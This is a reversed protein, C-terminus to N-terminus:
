EVEAIRLEVRRNQERGERTANDAIPRDPGHGRASLRAEEVGEAILFDRVARAREDSLRRNLVASGRSDTHGEILVRRLQPNALLVQAVERLLGHSRTQISAKGTDFHVKERLEITQGVDLQVQLTPEEVVPEPAPVTEIVPELVPQAVPAIVPPAVIPCGDPTGVAAELPCADDGNLVGDRDADLHPCQEIPYRSDERCLDRKGGDFSVGAIARVAPTGPSNGFGPGALAFLQMGAIPFRAGALVEVNPAQGALPVQLRASLEGRLGAGLSTVGVGAEFRSGIRDIAGGDLETLLEATKPKVVGGLELAVRTSGVRKGAGVRPALAVSPDRTLLASSGLPLGVGLGLGLDIPSGDVERLLGVRGQLWPTGLGMGRGVPSVVVEGLESRVTAGNQYAVVPVWGSLELWRNVAYAGGFVTTWRHEVLTARSVGEEVYKLPSNQYGLSASMRWEGAANLDAGGVLLGGRAAPNWTLQELEFGEVRPQAGAAGPLLATLVAVMALGALKAGAKTVRASRLFRRSRLLAAGAILLGLFSGGGGTSTCGVGGGLTIDPNKVSLKARGTRHVERGEADLVGIELSHEGGGLLPLTFSWNGQEDAQTRGVEVGDVYVVVTSGPTATGTVRGNNTSVRVTGDVSPDVPQGRETRLDFNGTVVDSVNGAEDKVEISVSRPGPEIPQSPTCTWAGSPDAIATCVIEGDVRVTIESGPEATGGFTPLPDTILGGDTRPASVAPQAPATTDIRFNRKAEPSENGAADTSTATVEHAGDALAVTSTCSWKGAADTQATCVLQGDVRVDVPSRPEATGSFRPTAISVLGNKGVPDITPLAPALTDVTFTSTGPASPRGSRDTATLALRHLGDALPFPQACSWSGDEAVLATCALTGDVMLTVVSHPEGTGVYLPQRNSLIEANRPQTLKPTGPNVTDVTFVSEGPLSDNGADDKAILTVTHPGDLLRQGVDCSFHGTVDATVVCLVEGDIRVTVESLPEAVGTLTPTGTTIHAGDLPQQLVPQNPATLDIVVSRDAGPSVNGARDLARVTLTVTGEPLPQLPLCSWGGSADASTSCVLGTGQFVRVQALPEATGTLLPSPDNLKANEAPASWTSLAPATLDIEFALSEDATGPVGNPDTVTITVTHPGEALPPLTCSWTGDSAITATCLPQGGPGTVTVSGGAEQPSTTGTLTPTPVDLSEGPLPAGVGPPSVAPRVDLQLTKTDLGAANQASLTVLFAGAASPTGRITDVTPMDFSRGASSIGVVADNTFTLGPPLGTVDLIIPATGTATLTYRFPSGVAAHVQLASTLQPKTRVTVTLTEQSSGAPNTASLPLTLTGEEDPTGSLIGTTPDFQAWSPLATIGLTPQTGSATLAYTFLDGVVADATLASTIQPVSRVTIVLSRQDSGAPNTARLGVAVSGDSLPTGTLLGTAPDFSLWQPLGNVSLQPQTGSATLTYGFPQGVVADVALASTVVPTTRVTIVLTRTDSGAANAAHLAISFSGDEQPTGTLLNNQADFHLWQPMSAATLQPETGSATIGYTFPQGVVADVALASTIAPRTRVTILLARIDQGAPNTAELAVKHFDDATPTGSLVGTAPNFALWQPLGNVSLQPQTGSATLTYSFPQGVVADATLASTIVPVTRVTIVLTRTDIGAPNTAQLTVNVVGEASPTGTLAGTQADFSLWQPASVSIVPATGSATVGYTFPQGVVADVALSSTIQPATRVTILLTKQDTGAPNTAELGVAFVGDGHPIGTLQGTAEDFSLWQPLGSVSLQPATGSATLTYAFPQGVVADVALASTVVPMARVTINLTRTDTGAPNSAQLTVNVLGDATPVGSLVGTASDFSLWQPLGNVSLQPETGSATVAYTFPQGVVADVALSSTVLPRARVIILLARIDYGAPNVADLAVKYGGEATPIGSLLGTAPDFSAWAPLGRVDLQPQTGSATFTYSFLEGVVAEADLASTVRPVERVTITLTRDDQGLVNTAGLSVTHTAEAPPTGSLTGTAPDFAAWTPLSNAALTIPQLGTATTVYTFPEGAVASVSLASTIVPPSPPPPPLSITLTLTRADQGIGNSAGLPIHLTGPATPTGSVIGSGADFTAWAPLGSMTRTIPATGEATLTYSFPQGVTASATLGSTIVAPGDVTLMLAQQSTGGTNTARLGISFTGAHTPTGSIVGTTANFSAWAPLQTVSRTPVPSGTATLTYSFPAGVTATATLASTIVPAGGISVALIRYDSGFANQAVVPVNFTGVAGSTGSFAGNTSNFAVLGPLNSANYHIPGTGSAAVSITTWATTSTALTFTLASTIRPPVGATIVLTETRTVTGDTVSLTVNFTGAAPATGTLKSTAADYGLWAPRGTADLGTYQGIATLTYEFPLGVAATATLPSSIAIPNPEFAATVTQGAAVTVTCSVETGSCAGSWGAFRSGGEAVAHFAIVTGEAFSATTQTCGAGCQVDGPTAVLRGTGSGTKQLTVTRLTNVPDTDADGNDDPHQETSGVPAAAVVRYSVQGPGTGATVNASVTYSVESGPPLTATTALAGAGSLAGCEAGASPSCTWTVNALEAPLNSTIPAETATAPGANRVTVAYLVPQGWELAPQGNTVRTSLDVYHTSGAPTVRTTVLPGILSTERASEVTYWGHRIESSATADARVTMRVDFYGGAPVSPLECTISGRVGVVPTKCQVGPTDVSRFTTDAPLHITLKGGNAVEGGGNNVRYRYQYDSGAAVSQPGAAFVALGPITTGFADVIAHGWHGTPQCGGAIVRVELTDGVAADAPGIPLDFLLWDTYVVDGAANSRWPVGSENSFNFRSALTTGRTVNSVSVFYYPQEQIVHGPNQMVPLVVFRVHVKGDHPDIDKPTIKATQILRNVNRNKGLENVVAAGVGYRPYRVSDSSTLGPPVLSMVTGTKASTLNNGGAAILLDDESLVPLRAKNSLGTTVQWGNLTGAEFGPNVFLPDARRSTAASEDPAPQPATTRDSCAALLTAASLVVACFPRVTPRFHSM